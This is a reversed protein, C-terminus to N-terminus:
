LTVKVVDQAIALIKDKGVQSIVVFIFLFRNLIFNVFKEAHPSGYFLSFPILSHCSFNKKKKFFFM